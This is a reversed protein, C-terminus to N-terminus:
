PAVVYIPGYDRIWSDNVPWNHDRGILSLSTVKEVEAAFKAHQAAAEDFCGPWTEENRPKALWVAAIPEFEAPMRYGLEAATAAPRTIDDGAEARNM